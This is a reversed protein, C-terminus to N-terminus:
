KVISGFIYDLLITITDDNEYFSYIYQSTSIPAISLCISKGAELYDKENLINRAELFMSIEKM